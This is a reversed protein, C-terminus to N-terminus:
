GAQNGLPLCQIPRSVMEVRLEVGSVPRVEVRDLTVRGNWDNRPGIGANMMGAGSGSGSTGTGRCERVLCEFIEEDFIEAQALALEEKAQEARSSPTSTM